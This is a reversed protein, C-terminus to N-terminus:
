IEGAIAAMFLAAYVGRNAADQGAYKELLAGANTSVIYYTLLGHAHDRTTVGTSYVYVAFPKRTDLMEAIELWTLQENTQKMNM